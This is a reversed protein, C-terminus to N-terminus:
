AWATADPMLGSQEGGQQAMLARYEANSVEHKDILFSSVTVRKLGATQLLLPDEDATRCDRHATADM